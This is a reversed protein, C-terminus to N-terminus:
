FNKGSSTSAEVEKVNSDNSTKQKKSPLEVVEELDANIDIDQNNNEYANQSQNPDVDQIYGEDYFVENVMNQFTSTDRKPSTQEGKIDLLLSMADSLSHKKRSSNAVGTKPGSLPLLFLPSGAAGSSKEVDKIVKETPGEESPVKKDDRCVNKKLSKGKGESSSGKKSGKDRTSLMADAM